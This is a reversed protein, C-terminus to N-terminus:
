AIYMVKKVAAIAKQLDAKQPHDGSVVLEGAVNLHVTLPTGTTDINLQSMIQEVKDRLLQLKEHYIDESDSSGGEAKLGSSTPDVMAPQKAENM